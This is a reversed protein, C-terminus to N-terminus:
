RVARRGPARHAGPSPPGSPPAQGHAPPPAPMARGRAPSTPTERPRASTAAGVLAAALALATEGARGDSDGAPDYATLSAARLPLAGGIAKIAWEVEARTLGDPAAYPNVRGESPDLVDLDLHLYAAPKLRRLTALAAPLQERLGGVAVRRLASGALAEAELPDLDRAGVLVVAGEPVPHFGPISGALQTWCRGALTALSMGDLFGGVTTEPTNFDGHADFWVVSTAPGLGAVAGLAAPGCNGSLVLPFSGDATARRVLASVARALAFTTGIEAQWADAPPEATHIQVEHGAATLRRALGADLLRVPGAGLREGRRGSDFPVAILAVRM